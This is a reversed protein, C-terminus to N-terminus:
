YKRVCSLAIILKTKPSATKPSPFPFLEPLLQSCLPGTGSRADESLTASVNGDGGGGCVCEGWVMVMIM